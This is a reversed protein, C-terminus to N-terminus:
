RNDDTDKRNIDVRRAVYREQKVWGCFFLLFCAIGYGIYLWHRYDISVLSGLALVALVVISGALTRYMNAITTLTLLRDDDKQAKIYSEYDRKIWNRNRAIPELVLSGVRSGVLGLIYALALLHLANTADIDLYGFFKLSFALAGGPILANLLDYASAKKIVEDM